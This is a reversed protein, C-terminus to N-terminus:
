RWRPSKEVACIQDDGVALREVGTMFVRQSKWRNCIGSAPTGCKSM